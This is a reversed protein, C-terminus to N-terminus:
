FGMMKEVLLFFLFCCFMYSVAYCIYTNWKQELTSGCRELVELTQQTKDQLLAKVAPDPFARWTGSRPVELEVVGGSVPGPPEPEGRLMRHRQPSFLEKVDCTSTGRLPAMANIVNLGLCFVGGVTGVNTFVANNKWLPDQFSHNIFHIGM